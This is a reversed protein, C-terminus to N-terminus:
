TMTHDHDRVPYNTLSKRFLEKECIHCHTAAKFKNEDEETMDIPFSNDKYCKMM